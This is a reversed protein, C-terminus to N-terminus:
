QGKVVQQTWTKNESSIHLLYIGGSLEAPVTFAYQSGSVQPSLTTTYVTQGLTNVLQIQLPEAPTLGLTFGLTQTFPNPFVGALPAANENMGTLICNPNGPLNNDLWIGRQQIWSKLETIEGAYDAPIPSPNPWVYSGLIPWVLFNRQQSENLYLAMSDCYNYLSQQSLITQRLEQWRCQVKNTFATDQVLRAWWFPVEEGGPCVLSTNYAWGNVLFADCYDANLWALDYDWAPGIFLKGGDSDKKKYLFTSLRYGDVNKSYENLIFYDVFSNVDIYRAYGTVPNAFGPSNLATEFSDVYSEIYAQQQPVIDNGDPYVYQLFVQGGSSAPYNSVWGPSNPRDVKIIYGGTLEDGSIDTVQLKAIDVRDNDRKIKETFVYTGVYEGNLVLEVHQTRPAYWGMDRALQYALANNLLSKDAYSASLIWDSEKPMGLMASDIDNGNVDWLELGYSKKPMGQSSAGRLEIGIKGNYHNFPDALYNRATGNWIVGMDAMIKPEDGIPQNNTNIVVIPLNSSVFPIYTAPNNGFTISWGLLVGDDAPYTDTIRLTWTGNGNQGNNVRGMQGMPKFTGTFPAFSQTITNTVFVNFCTNTYNDDSGGQGAVLMGSTGDPAIIYIELDANWTHTLDICVTELGFGTTDITSPSLGSVSLTYDTTAYDNITQNLTDTFTQAQLSGALTLLALGSILLKKM